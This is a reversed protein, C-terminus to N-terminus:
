GVLNAGIGEDTAAEGLLAGLVIVRAPPPSKPDTTAVVEVIAIGWAVGAAMTSVLRYPLAIVIAEAM